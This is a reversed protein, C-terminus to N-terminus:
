SLNIFYRVFCMMNHKKKQKTEIYQAYRKYFRCGKMVKIADLHIYPTSEEPTSKQFTKRESM